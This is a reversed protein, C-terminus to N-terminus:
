VQDRRGAVFNGFQLRHSVLQRKSRLVSSTAEVKIAGIASAGPCSIDCLLWHQKSVSEAAMEVKQRMLVAM